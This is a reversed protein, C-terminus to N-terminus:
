SRGTPSRTSAPSRSCIASPPRSNKSGSPSRGLSTKADAVLLEIKEEPNMRAAAAETDERDWEARVHSMIYGSLSMDADEAERELRNREAESVYLSIPNTNSMRHCERGAMATCAAM